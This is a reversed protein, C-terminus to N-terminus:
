EDSTKTMQLQLRVCSHVNRKLNFMWGGCLGVWVVWCLLNRTQQYKINLTQYGIGPIILFSVGYNLVSLVSLVFIILLQIPSHQEWNHQRPVSNLWCYNIIKWCLPSTLILMTSSWNSNMTRRETHVWLWRSLPLWCNPPGPELETDVRSLFGELLESSSFYRTLVTINDSLLRAPQPRHKGPWCYLDGRIYWYLCITTM